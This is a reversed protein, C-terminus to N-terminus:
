LKATNKVINGFLRVRSIGGDPAMLIKVHSICGLKQVEDDYYHEKHPRLKQPPLLCKWSMKSDTLDEVESSPSALCAEIWCSDPFNGKFHNTDIEIKSVSGVHGLKLLAWEYGPVQLIGKDDAHLVAPRDLRRATEWGDGMNIGRGAGILNRPHGYHANSYAVCLGGNEASALDLITKDPVQDWDPKAFGFVKLRAIGGDPYLNLRVHTWRQSSSVPIYNHCTDRYGAGLPTQAVLTQWKDSNLKAVQNIEDQSAESGMRSTRPPILAEEEPTLVAAQLSAFPVYNGTFFSTDADIGMIVGPIGLKIICWDHGAIRKRRTEWGDMWKGCETFVGERWEADADKLLNEAVAFWDDSAFLIRSGIKDSILNNLETFRPKVISLKVPHDAM